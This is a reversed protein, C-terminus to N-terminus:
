IEGTMELIGKIATKDMGTHLGPGCKRDPEQTRDTQNLGETHYQGISSVPGMARYFAEGDAKPQIRTTFNLKNETRQIKQM